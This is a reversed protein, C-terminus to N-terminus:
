PNSTGNLFPDADKVVGDPDVTCQVPQGVGAVLDDNLTGAVPFLQRGVTFEQTM